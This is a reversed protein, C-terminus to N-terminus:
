SQRIGNLWWEKTGDVDEFAPGDVRHRKGNLWWEKTGDAYEIAPGDVRHLKGNLWWVKTGDVDEVAPGDVRHREGNLYWRITSHKINVSHGFSIMFDTRNNVSLSRAFNPLCLMSRYAAVDCGAIVHLIELPLDMRRSVCEISLNFFILKRNKHNDFEM